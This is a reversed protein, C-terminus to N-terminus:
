PAQLGLRWLSTVEAQRAFHLPDTPDAAKPHSPRATHQEIIRLGADAIAQPLFDPGRLGLHEALDSMILWGEGDAELHTALGQLYGLLMRNQPDYIANEIATSPRAPLWPPNCVILPSKGNPFLDTQELTITDGLGLRDINERACALARTDVDTAVIKRVGRQALLAALVGSGTGIDFAMRTAPLPAQAVLDLYEGRNPSFVGYHVHIKEPLGAATVGKKRWEHAGIFGQLTRLPLLFPGDAEGVAELCATRADPARRLAIGAQADLEILLRNLLAARQSQQQRHRNFADLTTAAKKADPKRHKKSAPRHDIRRALAQLLQRANQFDGRWLLSTGQSVLRYATDASLTDDATIIRVPPQGLIEAHWLAHHTTDSESWSITAFSPSSPDVPM